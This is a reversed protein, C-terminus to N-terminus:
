KDAIVVRHKALAKVVNKIFQPAPKKAQVDDSQVHGFGFLHSLAVGM